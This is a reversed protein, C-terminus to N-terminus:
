WWHFENQVLQLIPTRIELLESVSDERTQGFTVKVTLKLVLDQVHNM